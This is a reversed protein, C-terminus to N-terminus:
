CQFRRIFCFFELYLMATLTYTTIASSNTNRVRPTGSLRKGHSIEYIYQALIRIPPQSLASGNRHSSHMKHAQAILVRMPSRQNHQLAVSFHSLSFLRSFVVIDYSQPAAFRNRFTLYVLNEARPLACQVFVMMRAGTV